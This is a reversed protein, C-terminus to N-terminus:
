NRTPPEDLLRQTAKDSLRIFTMTSSFLNVEQKLVTGDRRVWLRGRPRRANSLGSGPATRYVVLWVDLQKGGWVIPEMNEVVAELLELPSNPSRLPSYTRVKWTQGLHLGPLKTQPSLSDDLLTNSQLPVDTEYSFDGSRVLLTLNGEQVTGTVLIVDKLTGLHVSSELRVLRGLPDIGISSETDMPTKPPPGDVMRFFAQIWAPTMEELPLEDFHVRSHIETLGNLRRTESLAWGVPAGNWSMRWGVPKENERAALITEYSPPEGLLLPPLVKELVLWSMTTIWLLVIALNFWRSSM